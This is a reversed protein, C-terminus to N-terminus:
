FALLLITESNMLVFGSSIEISEKADETEKIITESLSFSNSRGVVEPLGSGFVRLSTETVSRVM